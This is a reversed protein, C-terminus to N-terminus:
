YVKYTYKVSETIFHRFEFFKIQSFVVFYILFLIAYLIFCTKNKM